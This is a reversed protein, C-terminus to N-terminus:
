PTPGRKGLAISEAKLAEAISAALNKGIEDAATVRYRAGEADLSVLEVKGRFAVSRAVAMLVEYVIRQPALPDVVVETSVLPM